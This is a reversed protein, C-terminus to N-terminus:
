RAALRPRSRNGPGSAIGTLQILGLPMTGDFRYGGDAEVLLRAESAGPYAEDLVVVMAQEEGDIRGIGSFTAWGPAAQLLGATELVIETPGDHLSFWAEAGLGDSGQRVLIPQISARGTGGDSRALRVTTRVSVQRARGTSMPRTPMYRTRTLITGAQEATVAGDRLALRGDVLVHRIGDSLRAPEEYTARDIVTMPDFVTIDAVMGSSLFGRDVMGLLSAPLGTMKRIADEWTLVAQERVYRGLLRPFAGYNRPHTRDSTTAGCDCAIAADPYQLLTVLDREDGFRLIAPGVGGDELLRLVAEGASVQLEEMVDVLERGSAPLYVGQPGGFRAAMVVEAEEVIRRRLEPDAFRERMADTGGDQAWAPVILAGLGTQGALYPYLDAAAYHGRATAERLLDTVAGASGQEHGQVKMHTVLPALGAREGIAITEEIGARSSFNSEPTIREHNTFQTRWPRAAGVVRVVEDTTAYYAPKYDLGASVGWAGSELGVVILERMRTIEDDTARRDDPGVVSRWISNFGIYAGVNVALGASALRDLQVRIDAGGGGDANVIETTVGQTLMNEAAPLARISAHSHLNIFGPAVFLGTVDLDVAAREASLDGIAVIRGHRLGVDAEYRPSGTGDVVTGGRLVV